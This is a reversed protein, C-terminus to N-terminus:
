MEPLIYLSGSLIKKGTGRKTDNIKNKRFVIICKCNRLCTNMMRCINEGNGKMKMFAKIIEM